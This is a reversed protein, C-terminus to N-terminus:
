AGDAAETDTSVRSTTDRLWDLISDPTADAGLDHQETPAWEQVGWRGGAATLVTGTVPCSRSALM